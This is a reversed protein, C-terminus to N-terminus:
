PTLHTVPNCAYSPYKESMLPLMQNFYHPITELSFEWGRRLISRWIAAAHEDFRPLMSGFLYENDMLGDLIKLIENPLTDLLGDYLYEGPGRMDWYRWLLWQFLESKIGTRGGYINQNANWYELVDKVTTGYYNGSEEEDFSQSKFTIQQIAEELRDPLAALTINKSLYERLVGAVEFAQVKGCSSRITVTKPLGSDVRINCYVHSYYFM